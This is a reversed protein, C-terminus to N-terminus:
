RPTPQACNRTLPEQPIQIRLTDSEAVRAWVTGYNKWKENLKEVVEPAISGFDRTTVIQITKGRLDLGSARVVVPVVVFDSDEVTDKFKLVSLKPATNGAGVRLFPGAEPSSLAMLSKEDFNGGSRGSNRLITSGSQGVVTMRTLSSFAFPLFITESRHNEYRLKLPLRLAIDDQGQGLKFLQAWAPPPLGLCYEATGSIGITVDGSAAGTTQAHVVAGYVALLLVFTATRMDTAMNTLCVSTTWKESKYSVRLIFPWKPAIEVNAPNTRFRQFTFPIPPIENADNGDVTDLYHV